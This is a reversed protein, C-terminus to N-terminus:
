KGAANPNAKAAADASAQGRAVPNSLASRQAAMGKAQKDRSEIMKNMDGTPGDSGCGALSFVGILSLGTTLLSLSFIAKKM